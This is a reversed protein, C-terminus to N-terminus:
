RLGTCNSSFITATYSGPTDPLIPAAWDTSGGPSFPVVLNIPGSPYTSQAAATGAYGVCGLAALGVTFALAKRRAIKM